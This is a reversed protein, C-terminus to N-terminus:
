AIPCRQLLGALARAASALPQARIDAAPLWLEGDAPAAPPTDPSVRLLLHARLPAGDPGPRSLTLHFDALDGPELRRPTVLANLNGLVLLLAPYLLREVETRCKPLGWALAADLAQHAEPRVLGRALALVQDPTVLTPEPAAV